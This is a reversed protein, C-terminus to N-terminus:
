VKRAPYLAERLEGKFRRIIRFHAPGDRFAVLFEDEKGASNSAWDLAIERLINMLAMQPIGLDEALKTVIQEARVKDAAADPDTDHLDDWLTFCEFSTCVGYKRFM